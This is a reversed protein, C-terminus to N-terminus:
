VAAESGGHGDDCEGVLECVIADFSGPGDEGDVGLQEAADDFSECDEDLAAGLWTEFDQDEPVMALLRSVVDDFSDGVDKRGNLRKWNEDSVRIHTESDRGM